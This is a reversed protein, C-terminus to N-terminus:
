LIIGAEEIFRLPNGQVDPVAEFQYGEYPLALKWSMCSAETFMEDWGIDRIAFFHTYYERDSFNLKAWAAPGFGRKGPIKDSPDGCLTKYLQIHEPICFFKQEVLAKNVKTTANLLITVGKTILPWLDKDNSIVTEGEKARCSIYDDAEGVTVNIVQTKSFLNALEKCNNYVEWYIPDDGQDRGAKYGPHIAKRYQRSTSTDCVLQIEVDIYKIMMNYFLGYPNGGGHYIRKLYNHADIYIM